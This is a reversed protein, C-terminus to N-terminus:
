EEQLTWKRLLQRARTGITTGEKSDQYTDNILPKIASAFFANGHKEFARLATWRVGGSHDQLFPVLLPLIRPGGGHHLLGEIAHRRMEPVETTDEAMHFFPLALEPRAASHTLIEAAFKRLAIQGPSQMVALLFAPIDNHRLYDLAMLIATKIFRGEIPDVTTFLHILDPALEDVRISHAVRVAQRSIELDDRALLIRLQDVLLLHSELVAGAFQIFDRDFSVPRRSRTEHIRRLLSRYRVESM